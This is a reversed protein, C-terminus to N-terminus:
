ESRPAISTRMDSLRQLMQCREEDLAGRRILKQNYKWWNLLGRNEVKKKNPLHGHEQIFLKLQEYNELWRTENKM